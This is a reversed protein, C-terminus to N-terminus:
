RKRLGESFRKDAYSSFKDSFLIGPRSGTGRYVTAKNCERDHEPDGMNNENLYHAHTM